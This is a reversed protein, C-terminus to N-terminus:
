PDIKERCAEPSGTQEICQEIQEEKPPVREEDRTAEPEETPEEEQTSEPVDTPEEDQTPEPEEGPGQEQPPESEEVSDEIGDGNRDRESPVPSVTGVGEPGFEEICSQRM